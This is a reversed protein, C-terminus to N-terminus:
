KVCNTHTRKHTHTQTNIHTLSHTYTYTPTNQYTHWTLTQKSPKTLAIQIQLYWILVGIWFITNLCLMFLASQRLDIKVSEYVIGGSWGLTFVCIVCFHYWIIRSSISKWFIYLLIANIVSNSILYSNELHSTKKVWVTYVLFCLILM